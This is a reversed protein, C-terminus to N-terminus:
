EVFAQDIVPLESVCGPFIREHCQKASEIIVVENKDNLVSLEIRYASNKKNGDM